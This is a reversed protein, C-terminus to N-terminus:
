SIYRPFIDGYEIYPSVMRLLCCVNPLIMNKLDNTAIVFCEICHVRCNQLRGMVSLMVTFWLQLISPSQVRVKTRSSDRKKTVQDRVRSRTVRVQLNM